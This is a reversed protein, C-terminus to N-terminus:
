VIRKFLETLAIRTTLQRITERDKGLIKKFTYLKGRIFFGFYVLGVPKLPSGGKPGAIGTVAIGFDAGYDRGLSLAMLGATEASVEGYEKIINEPVKLLSTKIDNSYAVISGKYFKSMGAAATLYASIMGGTLSEATMLVPASANKITVSKLKNFISVALNKNVTINYMKNM